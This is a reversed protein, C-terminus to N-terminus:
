ILSFSLLAIASYLYPEYYFQYFWAYVLLGGSICSTLLANIWTFRYSLHIKPENKRYICCATSAVPGFTWFTFAPTLVFAPFKIITATAKPIGLALSITIM